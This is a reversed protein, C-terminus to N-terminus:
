YRFILRPKHHVLTDIDIEVYPNNIIHDVFFDALHIKTQHNFRNFHVTLESQVCIYSITNLGNQVSKSEDLCSIKSISLGNFEQFWKIVIKVRDRIM